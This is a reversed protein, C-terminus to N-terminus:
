GVPTRRGPSRGCRWADPAVARLAATARAEDEQTGATVLLFSTETARAVSLGAKALYRFGIGGGAGVALTGFAALATAGAIRRRPGSDSRGHRAPHRM